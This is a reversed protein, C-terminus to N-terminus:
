LKNARDASFKLRGDGRQRDGCKAPLRRKAGGRHKYAKLLFRESLLM